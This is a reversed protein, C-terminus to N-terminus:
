EFAICDFYYTGRTVPGAQQDLVVTLEYLAGTDGLGAFQALPVTFTKYQDTIGSLTARGVTLAGPQGAKLEVRFQPAFEGNGRLALTLTRAPRADINMLRMWVGGYSGSPAIDYDVRWASAGDRGAGPEVADTVNAGNASWTGFEGGLENRNSGPKFGAVLAPAVRSDTIITEAPQVTTTVAPMEPPAGLPAAPGGCAAALGTLLIGLPGLLRTAAFAGGTEVSM